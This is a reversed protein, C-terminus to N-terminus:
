EQFGRLGQQFRSYDVFFTARLSLSNVFGTEVMQGWNALYDEPIAEGEQQQVLNNKWVLALESGPSFIWRYVLDVSWANYNVDYDSTGDPRMTEADTSELNGADDLQLFEHYRVTSWSHRLRATLSMRNTFIYSATLVQTIERNTRDGFLSILNDGNTLVDAWGREHQREIIKWIYRAMLRDNLRFRPALRLTYEDWNRFTPGSAHWVGVDMAFRRRYDSSFWGNAMWWAPEQWTLGDVRSAFVNQTTVPSWNFELNWTNFSRTTCRLNAAIQWDRFTRPSEIMGRELELSVNLRNFRGFPENIRFDLGGYTVVENPAQLYGLDNPDYLESELYHGFYYTFRGKLRQIGVNYTHGEDDDDPGANFKRNIAGNLSFRWKNEPDLLSLNASQVWADYRNGERTTLATTTNFFSNNPLNQDLVAVTYGTLSSDANERAVAQMLGLGTGNAARGSVKTANLLQTDAAGVRRSYVIGSKNFMETGERFFQRNEDFQIEFPSLNLVLNDSVVQGFDPILTMDLTFADGLGLKLDMGGRYEQASQGSADRLTYGSFYPFLSVRAPPEIDRIGNLTGGQNMLGDLNPDMANWVDDERHRRITRYFNMGWVQEAQDPFRFAMWPIRFEAVWGVSDIRSAVDWVANWSPDSEDGSLLEDMQIGEPTTAFRVGNLGDNFTSFWIGFSDTNDFDDRQSMQRLISDPALDWMRAGIYLAFDDYMFRVETRQSPVGYPIPSYQTLESAVPAKAWDDDDLQGDIQATGRIATAERPPRQPTQTHANFVVFIFVLALFLRTSMSAIQLHLPQASVAAFIARSKGTQKNSAWLKVIFTADM